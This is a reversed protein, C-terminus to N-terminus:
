PKDCLVLILNGHSASNFNKSVLMLWTHRHAVLCVGKCGNLIGFLDSAFLPVPKLAMHVILFQANFLAPQSHSQSAHRRLWPCVRVFRLLYYHRVHRQCSHLRWVQSYEAPVSDEGPPPALSGVLTNQVPSCGSTAGPCYNDPCM